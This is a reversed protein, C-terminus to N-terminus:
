NTRSLKELKLRKLINEATELFLKSVKHDPVLDTLPHGKDCQEMLLTDYPLRTLIEYEYKQKILYSNMEKLTKSISKEENYAPIIISLKM